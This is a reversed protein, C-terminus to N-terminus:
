QFISSSFHVSPLSNEELKIIDLMSLSFTPLTQVNKSNPEKSKINFCKARFARSDEVDAKLVDQFSPISVKSLDIEEKVSHQLIFKVLGKSKIFKREKRSMRSRRKSM